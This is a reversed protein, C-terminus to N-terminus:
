PTHPQSFDGLSVLLTPHDVVLGACELDILTIMLGIGVAISSKLSNPIANIIKERIGFFSLLVYILGVTSIVTPQVFLIYAMTMFTTTGGIFEKKSSTIGMVDAPSQKVANAIVLM